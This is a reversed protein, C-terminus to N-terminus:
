EGFVIRTLEARLTEREAAKAAVFREALEFFRAREAEEAEMGREVMSVIIKSASVGKKKALDRLRRALPRPISVSQRYYKPATAM